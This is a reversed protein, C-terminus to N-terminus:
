KYDLALVVDAATVGTNDNNAIGTVIRFSLGANLEVGGDHQHATWVVGAGTTAGPVMLVKVPTDSSTPATAKDYIKVYAQAANKNFAQISCLRAPAARVVTADGSGASVLHYPTSM